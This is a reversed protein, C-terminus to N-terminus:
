FGDSITRGDPRNAMAVRLKKAEHHMALISLKVPYAMDVFM